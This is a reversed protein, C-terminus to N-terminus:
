MAEPMMPETMQEAPLAEPNQGMGALQAELGQQDQSSIADMVKEKDKVEFADLVRELLLQVAPPLPGATLIPALERFLGLAQERKVTESQAASAPELTFDFAGMLNAPDISEFSAQDGFLRVFFPETTFQQIMSGFHKGMRKFSHLNMYIAKLSFRSAGAEMLAAIGTATDTLSPSDQGRQYASVSTTRESWDKAQDVEAFASATVDTTPLPYIVERADMDGNTEIIGGPRTKLQNANALKSKNVVKMQDMGIRVNDIRQNALANILDQLGEIVEIEGVGWFEHPMKYDYIPIFPKQGHFFPNDQVRLIVKDNALTILRGDDLWFEKIEVQNRTPDGMYGRDISTMRESHPDDMFSSNPAFFDRLELGDPLHYIGQKVWDVVGEKGDWSQYSRHIVYRASDVNESEPAVWFNKPDINTAMPGEYAVFSERETRMGVPMQVTMERTEFMPEGNDDRMPLRTDPDILPIRQTHPIEQFAPKMAGKFEKRVDWHTKLIGTGIVLANRMADIVHTHVGSAEMDHDMKQEMVKAPSIDEPGFPLVMFSPLQSVLHPLITEVTQFSEPMFVRSRWDGKKRPPVYSRYQKYWKDWHPDYVSRADYASRWAQNTWQFMEDYVKRDIPRSPYGVNDGPM